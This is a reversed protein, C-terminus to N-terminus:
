ENWSIIAFANGGRMGTTSGYVGGGCGPVSNFSSATYTQNIIVNNEYYVYSSFLRSQREHGVPMGGVGLYKQETFITSSKQGFISYTDSGFNGFLYVTNPFTSISSSGFPAGPFNINESFFNDSGGSISANSIGYQINSVGGGRAQSTGASQGNGGLGLTIIIPTGILNNTYIGCYAGSGGGRLLSGGGGAGWVEIKIDKANTPLIFNIPDNTFSYFSKSYKYGASSLSNWSMTGNGNSQLVQGATGATGNPLIENAIQVNGNFTAGGEFASGGEAWFRIKRELNGNGAGVIDLTNLTFLGYGIKGANTEKGAVGFGTEIASNGVLNIGTTRTVGNVHLKDSPTLTGIGVNQSYSVNFIVLTISFFFIIKKM